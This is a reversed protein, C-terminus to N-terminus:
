GQIDREIKGSKRETEGEEKRDAGREGEKAKNIVRERERECV